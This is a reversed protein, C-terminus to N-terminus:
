PSASRLLQRVGSAIHDPTVLLAEANASPQLGAGWAIGLGYPAVQDLASAFERRYSLLDALAARASQVVTYGEGALAHELMKRLSARDEVILIRGAAAGANDSAM